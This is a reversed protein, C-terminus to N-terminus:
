QIRGFMKEIETKSLKITIPRGHPCQLPAGKQFFSEMIYKIDDESLKRGGKIANRCAKKAVLEKIESIKSIDDIEHQFLEGLDDFFIEFDLNIFEMPVATIKIINNGFDEIEFGMKSLTDTHKLLVEAYKKNEYLYAIMLEQVDPKDYAIKKMYEDYLLKEHAAHQDILYLNDDYEILIYTDFLQGVIKYDIRYSEAMDGIFLNEEKLRTKDQVIKPSIHSLNNLRSSIEDIKQKQNTQVTDNAYEDLMKNLLSQKENDYKNIEKSDIHRLFSLEQAKQNIIKNLTDKVANYLAANIKCGSAFRVEKKGPHVNVDVIEFPMVVELVFVPFSRKMLTDGYANQIVSSLTFDKIIRGNIILTQYNRNHKIAQSSPKGIYGFVRYKQYTYDTEVLNDCINQNYVSKIAELLGAGPSSLALKKDIYYRFAVNSNSLILDMVTQTVNNEETKSTKLFKYRAPTNYFLKSITISTGKSLATPAFDLIQGGKVKLGYAIDCLFHKSKIEMESVSAISSLAEGRFGLTSITKLDDAACIKSTAHPLISRKLDDQDMGEGDDIVCISKIGGDEISVSINKAGADISNEVLEKVISAPNEVVEGAAIMNYVASDLINIVSM